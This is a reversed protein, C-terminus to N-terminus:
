QGIDNTAIMNFYTLGGSARLPYELEKRTGMEGASLNILRLM